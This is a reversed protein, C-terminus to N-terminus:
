WDSCCWCSTGLHRSFRSLFTSRQTPLATRGPCIGRKGGYSLRSISFSTFVFRSLPLLQFSFLDPKWIHRLVWDILWDILWDLYQDISWAMLWNFLRLNQESKLISRNVNPTLPDSVPRGCIPAYAIRIIQFKNKEEVAESIVKCKWNKRTELWENWSKYCNKGDVPIDFKNASLTQYFMFFICSFCAGYFSKLTNSFWDVFFVFSFSLCDLWLRLLVLICLLLFYYHHRNCNLILVIVPFRSSFFLSSDGGGGSFLPPAFGAEM